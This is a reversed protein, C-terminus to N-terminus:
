TSGLTSPGAGKGNFAKKIDDKPAAAGAPKLSGQGSSGEDSKEKVKGGKLNKTNEFTVIVFDGVAVPIDSKIIPDYLEIISRDLETEGFSSPIPLNPHLAELRIRCNYYTKNPSYKQFDSYLDQEQQELLVKEVFYVQGKFDKVGELFDYSYQKQILYRLAGEVTTTKEDIPPILQDEYAAGGGDDISPLLKVRNDSL